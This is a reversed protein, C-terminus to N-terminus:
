DPLQRHARYLAVDVERATRAENVGGKVPSKIDDRYKVRAKTRARRQEAKAEAHCIDKEAGTLRECKARATRHEAAARKVGTAFEDIRTHHTTETTTFGATTNTAITAAMAYIGVTAVVAILLGALLKSM